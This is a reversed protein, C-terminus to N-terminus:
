EATGVLVALVRSKQVGSQGPAPSRRAGPSCRTAVSIYIDRITDRQKSEFNRWHPITEFDVSSGGHLEM